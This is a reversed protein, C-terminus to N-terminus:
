SSVVSPIGSKLGIFHTIKIHEYSVDRVHHAINRATMANRREFGVMVHALRVLIQM